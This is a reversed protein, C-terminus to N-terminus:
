QCALRKLRKETDKINAQIQSRKTETTAAALNRKQRKRKKRLKKCKPDEGAPAAAPGAPPEAPGPLVAVYFAGVGAFLTSPSGSGDLNGVRVDNFNGWYIKGAAPDVAVGQGAENFLTSPAGSGDLNAVQIGCGSWYIKGAAPDIAVGKPNPDCGFLTEASGSDDINGGRITLQGSNAWYLRGAAPDIAVGLPVADIGGCCEPEVFLGSPSGSGDLNGVRIENVADAWYIKNAAPDIAV